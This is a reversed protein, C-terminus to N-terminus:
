QNVENKLKQMALRAAEQEAQKKSKGEGRSFEQEGIKLVVLFTRDHSPGKEKVLEYRPVERKLGQIVEQLRTKYDTEYDNLPDMQSIIETFHSLVIERAKEFGGDLYIAAVLAEYCSAILRPKQAGATAIEGKGLRIFQPLLLKKGVEFLVAENVLSARKKSLNGETDQSFTEMLVQSVVLDIVADGLFELKENHGKSTDTSEYHYSKHTLATELLERNKFQYNLTTELSLALNSEVQSHTNLQSSM